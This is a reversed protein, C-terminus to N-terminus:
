LLKCSCFLIHVVTSHREAQLYLLSWCSVGTFWVLSDKKKNLCWQVKHLRFSQSSCSLHTLAGCDSELPLHLHHRHLSVYSETRWNFAPKRRPRVGGSCLLLPFPWVHHFCSGASHSVYVLMHVLACGWRGSGKRSTQIDALSSFRTRSPFVWRHRPDRLPFVATQQAWWWWQGSLMLSYLLCTCACWMCMWHAEGGEEPFYLLSVESSVNLNNNLLNDCCQLHHVYPTLQKKVSHGGLLKIGMFM